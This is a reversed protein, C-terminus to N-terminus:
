VESAIVSKTKSGDTWSLRRQIGWSFLCYSVTAGYSQFAHKLSVRIGDEYIKCNELHPKMSRCNGTRKLHYLSTRVECAMVANM